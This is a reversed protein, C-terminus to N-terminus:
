DCLVGVGPMMAREWGSLGSPSRPPTRPGSGRQLCLLWRRHVFWRAGLGGVPTDSNEWHRWTSWGIRCDIQVNPVTVGRRRACSCDLAPRSGYAASTTERLPTTKGIAIGSGKLSICRAPGRLPGSPLPQTEPRVALLLLFPCHENKHRSIGNEYDPFVYRSTRLTRLVPVTRGTSESQCVIAIHM